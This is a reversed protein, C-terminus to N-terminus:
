ADDEQPSWHWHRADGNTYRRNTDLVWVTKCRRCQWLSGTAVRRSPRPAPCRHAPRVKTLWPM